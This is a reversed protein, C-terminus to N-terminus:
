QDRPDKRLIARESLQQGGVVAEQVFAQRPVVADRTDAARMEALHRERRAAMATADQAM